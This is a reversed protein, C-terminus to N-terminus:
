AGFKANGQDISAMWFLEEADLERSSGALGKMYIKSNRAADYIARRREPLDDVPAESFGREVFWQMTVTSLVFLRTVGAAVATREMYGLM